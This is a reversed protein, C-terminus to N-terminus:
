QQTQATTFDNWICNRIMSPNKVFFTPIITALIVFSNILSEGQVKIMNWSIFFFTIFKFYTQNRVGRPYFHQLYDLLCLVRFLPKRVSIIHRMPTSCQHGFKKLLIWVQNHSSMRSRSINYHTTNKM